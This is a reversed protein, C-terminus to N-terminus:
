HEYAFLLDSENIILGYGGDELTVATMHEMWEKIRVHMGIELGITKYIERTLGLRVITGDLSQYRRNEPIIIGGVEKDAIDRKLLIKRGIPFIINDKLVAYINHQRCWFARGEVTNNKRDGFGVQCLVTDGEKIFHTVKEGKALVMCSTSADTHTEPIFIGGRMRSDSPHLILRDNIPKLM